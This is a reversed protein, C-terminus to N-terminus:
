GRRFNDLILLKSDLLLLKDIEKKSKGRRSKAKQYKELTSLCRHDYLRNKHEQIKEIKTKM